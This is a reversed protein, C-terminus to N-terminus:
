NEEKKSRLDTMPIPNGLDSCEPYVKIETIRGAGGEEGPSYENIEM